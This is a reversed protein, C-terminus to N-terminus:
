VPKRLSVKGLGFNQVSIRVMGNPAQSSHGEYELRRIYPVNNSLYNIEGAKVTAEVDATAASGNPDIRDIENTIPSALSCQWNGRARGGVYDKPKIIPMSDNIKRGKRLRGAKTLNAPDQRLRYNEDSVAQNYAAAQKNVKWLDPNGVPTMMIVSNFLGITRHRIDDSMQNTVKDTIDKLSM